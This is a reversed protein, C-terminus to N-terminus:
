FHAIDINSVPLLPLLVILMACSVQQLNATGKEVSQQARAVNDEMADLLEQDKEVLVRMDQFMEALDQTEQQIKLMQENHHEIRVAERLMETSQVKLAISQQQQQQQEQVEVVEDDHQHQQQQRKQELTSRRRALLVRQKQTLQQSISQTKRVQERWQKLLRDRVPRDVNNAHQDADLWHKVGKCLATADHLDREIQEIQEDDTHPDLVAVARDLGDNLVVLAQIQEIVQQM